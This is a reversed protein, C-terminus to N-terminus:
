DSPSLKILPRLRCAPDFGIISQTGPAFVQIGRDAAVGLDPTRRSAIADPHGPPWSPLATM